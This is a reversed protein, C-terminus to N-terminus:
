PAIMYNNKTSHKIKYLAADARKLAQSIDNNSTVNPTVAIGISASVNKEHPISIDRGLMTCIEQQYGNRCKIDFLIDKAISSSLEEDGTKLVILFEDGGFRVAFGNSGAAHKLLDAINKLILDGVDHGFTDNYFKFNDLDIYLISLDLRERSEAAREIYREINGYFGDRNLLSTLYDTVAANELQENIIKIQKQKELMELANVLQTYALSFINFDSEDLMYKNTTSTWNDKMCIYSVFLSDLQEDVYFPVCIMSCVTNAGFVSIVTSYENYNKRIKSTVFGFRHSNFYDTIIHLDEKDLTINSSNFEVKPKENKYKIFVISDISFSTAITNLATEILSIKTKESIDVIKQWINLFNLQKQTAEYNKELASRRTANNIEEITLGDLTLKYKIPFYTRKCMITTVKQLNIYHNHKECYEIAENFATSALEENGMLNHLEALALQYQVFSFFLNGESRKVHILAENMLELAYEYKGADKALQASVHFYLFLEDDYASYTPNTSKSSTKSGTYLVHSLFQGTYDLYLQCNYTNGLRYCCLALLGFLKSLNCVRLDNLHLANVIKLCTQLYTYATTYDESLLCNISMNYLVEGLQDFMGLRYYIHMANCYYDHATQYQEAACCNYGMGKYIDAEKLPDSDGILEHCKHYFYDSVEFAGHYSSLMINKRYAENLLQKNGLQTAIDICYHFNTLNKGIDEVHAYLNHDNEYAFLYTHALHNRYNYAKAQHIFDADIETDGSCFFMNHWGSMKAMADILKSKFIYFDNGEEIALEICLLACSKAKADKGNYMQTLSQIYYYSFGTEFSKESKYIDLLADCVLLANAVDSICLSSVAYLRLIRFRYQKDITWKELELKRYLIEMYYHLQAFDLCYFLNTLTPMYAPVNHSNFRFSGLDSDPLQEAFISDIICDKNELFEIFTEWATLIHPQISCLDNYAAFVYVNHTQNISYLKYLLEITSVAAKNINNIYILIRHESTITSLINIIGELFRDHEYEAEGIILDEERSCVGDEIYSSIISYHLPYVNCDHLFDDISNYKIDAYYRLYLDKIVDLFPEYPSVMTSGVVNRYYVDINSDHLPPLLDTTIEFTNYHKIMCIKSHSNSILQDTYTQIYKQFDTNMNMGRNRKLFNNSLQIM